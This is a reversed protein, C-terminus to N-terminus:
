LFTDKKKKKGDERPNEFVFYLELVLSYLLRIKYQRKKGTSNSPGSPINHFNLISILM